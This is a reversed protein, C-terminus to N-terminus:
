ASPNVTHTATMTPTAPKSAPWVQVCQPLFVATIAEKIEVYFM